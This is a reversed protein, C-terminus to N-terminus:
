PDPYNPPLSTPFIDIDVYAGIAVASSGGLNKPNLTSSSAASWTSHGAANPNGSNMFSKYRAQIESTLAAQASTPNSVTGFVIQIDDQHCVAGNGTCFPVDENGPYTAGVSFFGVYATGGHTIWNRAFAWNACKWMQDTGMAELQPRADVVEVGTQPVYFNSALLTDARSQGLSAAVFGTFDQEGLPQDFFGYIAVAAENAVTSVLVKKSVSPFPSTSDLTTTILTGDRVPRMPQSMGASPEFMFATQFLQGSASLISNLSLANHCSTDTAGCNIMGNFETQMNQQASPSLFGFDMPDSQIIGSQFLSSASPTALLARVMNGGASQGAITIMSSSGGFAPVVNKIFKLANIVDGVALNTAGSPPMFGLAGLRYQIVAVISNTAIALKSGDLGPGTASGVLFSGGHIWVFTPVNAGINLTTPVYLILSLCDETMSASDVNPQPCALPLALSTQAAM